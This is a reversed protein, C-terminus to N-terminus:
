RSLLDYQEQTEQRDHFPIAMYGTVGNRRLFDSIRSDSAALFSGGNMYGIDGKVVPEVPEAHVIKEGGINRFVLKVAPRHPAVEFVEDIGPGVVTVEKFLESYGGNSSSGHVKNVYIYLIMGKM